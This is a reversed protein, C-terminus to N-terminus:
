LYEPNHEDTHQEELDCLPHFANFSLFSTVVDKVLPDCFLSTTTTIIKQFFIM